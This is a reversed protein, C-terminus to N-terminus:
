QSTSDKAKGVAAVLKQLMGLVELNIREMRLVSHEMRRMRADFQEGALGAIKGSVADVAASELQSDPLWLRPPLAMRLLIRCDAQEAEFVHATGLVCPDTLM